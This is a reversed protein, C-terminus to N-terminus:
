NLTSRPIKSLIEDKFRNKIRELEDVKIKSKSYIWHYSDIRENFVGKIWCPFANISVEYYETPPNKFYIVRQDEGLMVGKITNQIEYNATDLRLVSDVYQIVSSAKITTDYFIVDLYEEDEHVAYFHHGCGKCSLLYTAMVVVSVIFRNM